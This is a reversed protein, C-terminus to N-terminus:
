LFKDKTKMTIKHIKWMKEEVQNKIIFIVIDFELLEKPKLQNHKLLIYHQFSINGTQTVHLYILFFFHNNQM